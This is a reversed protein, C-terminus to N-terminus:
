APSWLCVCLSLPLCVCVRFVCVGVPACVCGSPNLHYITADDLLEAPVVTNIVHERLDARIKENTVDPNHQTSIVITHVRLPVMRGGENRYEVTVQCHACVCVCVSPRSLSGHRM